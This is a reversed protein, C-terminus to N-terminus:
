NAPKPDPEAALEKIKEADIHKSMGSMRAQVNPNMALEMGAVQGLTQFSLQSAAPGEYRFAAKAKDRCSVTLLKM